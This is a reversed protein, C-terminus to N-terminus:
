ERVKINIKSPLMYLVEVTPEILRIIEETPKYAMPSEDITEQSVSTSYVDSMTEKYDDLSINKKAQARSMIRGAGHPGSFNWDANDKGVCIAIGDRMNFPIVLKETKYASISGKRIIHDRMDIYNHPCFIVEPVRIKYKKLIDKILNQITIHNYKAYSQAFCMDCLYGDLDKGSLYGPIDKSRQAVSEWRRCVKQGFNRSGTHITIGAMFSHNIRYAEPNSGVYETDYLYGPEQPATKKNYWAMDIFSVNDAEGYEIFHNSVASSYTGLQKYFIGENMNMRKLQEGVWRETVKDPLSSLREPWQQKMRNFQRSLFQFFDKEDIIPKKQIDHPIANRIKHEFDAYKEAPIKGTLIMHSVTCGIDGGVHSPNIYDGLTASFGITCNNGAHVDPMYHVTQNEFAPNDVIQQIQELAAPEVNDTHITATIFKGKIDM